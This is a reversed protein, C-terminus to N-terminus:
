VGGWGVDKSSGQGYILESAGASKKKAQPQGVAPVNHHNKQISCQWPKENTQGGSPYEARNAQLDSGGTGRVLDTSNVSFAVARVGTELSDVCSGRNPKMEMRGSVLDLDSGRCGRREERKVSPCLPM